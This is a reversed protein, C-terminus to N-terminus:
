QLADLIANVDFKMMDLYTAAEGGPPTISHTYLNYVVRVGTESALQDALQPNTGQELFIAKVGSSRIRDVLQSLQQASPEASSSTGPLITGIVQFGYRDAFYGFTEHNTVLLRRSEPLTSVRNQIWANLDNVEAIYREANSTYISAGAPDARTLGDRINEVYRIVLLPDLWFHPDPESPNGSSSTGSIRSALGQSAVVVKRDGGANTLLSNLWQEIGAGNIILLNCDAVKAIDQPTPEFEHPDLGYPILADVTFRDGAINQAIDALFTEVAIVRLGSTSIPQQTRCGVLMLFLLIGTIRLPSLIRM